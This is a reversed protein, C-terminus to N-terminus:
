RRGQDSVVIERAQYRGSPLEGEILELLGPV